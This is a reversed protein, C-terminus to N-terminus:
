MLGNFKQRRLEVADPGPCGTDTRIRGGISYVFFSLYFGLQSTVRIKEKFSMSSTYYTHAYLCIQLSHTIYLM